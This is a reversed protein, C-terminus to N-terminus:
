ISFIQPLKLDIASLTYPAIAKNRWPGVTKNTNAVLPAIFRNHGARQNGCDRASNM